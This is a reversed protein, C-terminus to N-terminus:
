INCCVKLGASRCENKEKVGEKEDLAGKQVYFLKGDGKCGISEVLCFYSFFCFFLVFLAM